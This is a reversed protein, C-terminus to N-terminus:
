MNLLKLKLEGQSDARFAQDLLQKCREVGLDNADEELGSYVYYVEREPEAKNIKAASKIMEFWADTDLFLYIPQKKKQTERLLISVQEDTIMKGFTAVGEGPTMFSNFVGEHVVIRDANKVNNLNFISNNKSYEKERSPANFSKIFPDKDISRTNWYIPNGQSDFTYFVLHNVLDLQRGDVLEVSGYTVYSINHEKIQDLTVGRGHLYTFFPFAEPNNFNAILSKCNTPPRPCSYKIAEKKELPEGGRSIFLILQEEETLHSGYQEPNAGNNRFNEVDHDYTALIDVAEEYSVNYYKMVFSVPNGREDCKFCIWLGSHDQIYMKHKNEGCFPCCFRTEAGADKSEGLEQYLLDIFM